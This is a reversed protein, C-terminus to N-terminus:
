NGIPGMFAPKGGLHLGTKVAPKVLYKTLDKLIKKDSGKMLAWSSFMGFGETVPILMPHTFALTTPVAARSIGGVGQQWLSKGSPPRWQPAMKKYFDAEAKLKPWMEKGFDDEIMKKSSYIADALRTPNIYSDGSPMPHIGRRYIKALKNFQSIAAVQKDGLKKLVAAEPDLKKLDGIIADKLKERSTRQAATLNPWDSKKGKKWFEALLSNLDDPDLDGERGLRKLLTAQKTDGWGYVSQIARSDSAWSPSTITDMVLQVSDDLPVVGGQKLAIEDLKNGFANYVVKTESFAERVSVGLDDIDIRQGAAKVEPPALDKIFEVARESTRKIINKRMWEKTAAGTPTVNSALKMMGKATTGVTGLGIEAGGAWLAENTIRELDTAEGFAKQALYEAGGAGAAAGGGRLALNGLRMAGRGIM